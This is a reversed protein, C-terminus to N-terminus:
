RVVMLRHLFIQVLFVLLLKLLLVPMDILWVAPVRLDAPVYAGLLWLFGRTLPLYILAASKLSSASMNRAYPSFSIFIGTEVFGFFHSL